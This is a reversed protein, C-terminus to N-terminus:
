YRRDLYLTTPDDSVIMGEVDGAMGSTIERAQKKTIQLQMVNDRLVLTFFCRKASAIARRLEIDDVMFLDESETGNKM